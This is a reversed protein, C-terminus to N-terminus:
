LQSPWIVLSNGDREAGTRALETSLPAEAAPQGDIREIVVKRQGHQRILHRAATRICSAQRSPDKASPDMVTIKRSKNETWLFWRGRSLLLHNDPKRAFRADRDREVPWDLLLGFPNAPDAASLLIVHDSDDAAGAIGTGLGAAAGQTRDGAKRPSPTDADPVGSASAQDAAATTQMERLREVTEREAFQLAPIDQVFLGRVALGLDEMRSLAALHLEWGYPSFAQVVNRTLVGFVRMLHGTWALVSREVADSRAEAAGNRAEAVGDRTEAIGIRVVDTGRRGALDAVAYWRGLGSRYKGRGQPETKRGHLRLPAFQDNAVLGQWAMELLKSTLQSPPEGTEAALATLFSAGRERLREHLEPYLPQEDERPLFPAYLDPRDARFFAIKGEQAGEDRRGLWFLEGSACLLDLDEKRYDAVRAPLIISEWWSVPLFLGQLREMAQLVGEPGSLRREPELHHREQLLRLLTEPPAQSSRNRMAVNREIRAQLRASIWRQGAPPSALQGAGEGAASSPVGSGGDESFPVIRGERAWEAVFLDAEERSLGYRQMLDEVGFSARTEVFRGLVFARAHPSEPFQGYIGTEDGCIYRREGAVATEVIRGTSLLGALWTRVKEDGDALGRIETEDLDGRDKVLQWLDDASEPMRSLREALKGSEERFAETWEDALRQRGLELEGEEKGFVEEALERSINLMGQRLDRTLADSEYIAINLYDFFFQAALPSPRECRAVTRVIEGKEIRALVDRVNPVDLLHEMCDRMTEKVLPFKAAVPMADRLLEQGRLRKLWSPTRRFSRSLLLSTEALQRFRAAFIPSAPLGEAVLQEVTGSHVGNLIRDLLAPDWIRFVLEIGNDKAVSHYEHPYSRELLREIAMLWTRNFRRGFWSHIVVHTLGSDDTYWEVPIRRHTPWASFAKQARYLSILSGAAEATFHHERCLWEVARTEGPAAQGGGPDGEAGPCAGSPGTAISGAGSESGGASGADDSIEKDDAIGGGTMLAELREMLRGVAAGLEVTRGPGEARWFPIEGLSAGSEVVEVRDPRISRIRWNTAGLQFTDGVRSEFVFEEDLEGLHLRSEAHYVPYNSSSPITGSGTVAAMAAAPRGSVRGSLRDWEILPRVFPYLGALMEVTEDFRARPLGNYADSRCVLRYLEDVHWDEVAAMAVIQQALVALSHRPPEIPETEKRRIRDALVAVEPLLGRTRVIITGRSTGGVAHGSRGFRQIGSAATQPSDIQLVHDIDGIDIGLELSSTAVLCRLKGERLLQETELRRERSVSGHHSRCFGDGMTENLRASLRECLRRNGVFILTTGGDGTHRLIEAILPTWVDERKNRLLGAFDPVTVQVTLERKMRSEVVAVDRPVYRISQEAGIGAASEQAEIGGASERVETGAGTDTGSGAGADAEGGVDALGRFREGDSGGDAEEWGGLFRAIREPPNQTASVGIRQPTRGCLAALRELSLSLHVGREGAALDHIEDVVVTEVTRLTERAKRSTLLMYLSEPTTVLVDPPRRIMSARTSQTTDGTRVGVTLGPWAEGLKAATRAWEEQFDFLHRRIDNNLAKLPTVYLIRVGNGSSPGGGALKDRIVRDVPVLLAALTKGSGTPASILVHRGARILPWAQQQVPTPEGFAGAFWDALVRHFPLQADMQGDMAVDRKEQMM